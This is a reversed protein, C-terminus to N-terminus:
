GRNKNRNKQKAQRARLKAKPAVHFTVTCTGVKRERDDKHHVAQIVQMELTANFELHHRRLEDLDDVARIRYIAPGLCPRRFKYNLEKCVVTYESGVKDFIYMGGAVESNALLAAGAMASYWNKNFRSFPMVAEYGDGTQKGLKIGSRYALPLFIWALFRHWRNSQTSKRSLWREISRMKRGWWGAPPDDQRLMDKTVIPKDPPAVAEVNERTPSSTPEPGLNAAPDIVHAESSM